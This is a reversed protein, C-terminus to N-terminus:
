GHFYELFLIFKSGRSLNANVQTSQTVFSFTALNFSKEHILPFGQNIVLRNDLLNEEEEEKYNFKPQVCSRLRIIQSGLLIHKLHFNKKAM